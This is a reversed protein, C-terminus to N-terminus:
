SQVSHKSCYDLYIAVVKSEVTQVAVRGCTHWVGPKGIEKDCTRKGNANLM